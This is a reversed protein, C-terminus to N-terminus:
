MVGDSTAAPDDEVRDSAEFEADSGADEALIRRSVDLERSGDNDLACFEDEATSTIVVVQVTWVDDTTGRTDLEDPTELLTLEDRRLRDEELADPLADVVPAQVPQAM